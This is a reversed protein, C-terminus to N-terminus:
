AESNVFTMFWAKSSKRYAFCAAFKTTPLAQASSSAGAGMDITQGTNAVLTCGTRAVDAYIYLDDGDSLSGDAPMTATTTDADLRGKIFSAITPSGTLATFTYAGAPSQPGAPGQTGQPGQPGQTGQPGQSGTAGTAGQSGTAGQAGQPGVAGQAGTTGQSGQPGAGGQAGTAGQSGTAGQPGVPGQSGTTGQSGTAGQPGQAGQVGQPGPPGQLGFGGPGPPGRMGVADVIIEDEPKEIVIETISIEVVVEDSV